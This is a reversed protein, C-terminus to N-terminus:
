VSAARLRWRDCEHQLRQVPDFLVAPWNSERRPAVKGHSTRARRGGTCRLIHLCVQRATRTVNGFQVNAELHTLRRTVAAAARAAPLESAQAGGACGGVRARLACDVEAGQDADDEDLRSRLQGPIREDQAVIRRLAHTV